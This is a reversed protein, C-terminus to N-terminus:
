KKKLPKRRDIERIKKEEHTFRAFMTSNYKFKKHRIKAIFFHLMLLLRTSLYFCLYLSQSFSFNISLTYPFFLDQYSILMDFYVFHASDLPLWIIRPTEFIGESDWNERFRASIVNIFYCLCRERQRLHFLLSVVFVESVKSGHKRFWIICFCTCLLELVSLLYLIM